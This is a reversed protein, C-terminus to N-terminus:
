RNTIFMDIGNAIGKVIADQYEPSAMLLDEKDNTMYGMEVITTPVTCWNIGSMTDTEWVYEKKAGTENIMGTLIDDSLRYSSDHTAACYPNNKTQCITMMGEKSPSDNGNAHIRVFADANADNAIKAREANSLNVDNTERTMIVQYGRMTLEDRLRLAVQLNLEYEALGSAVGRTGSSVKAKMETAGPGVPEKENNGKSQHGPDIAILKGGGTNAPATEKGVNITEEVTADEDSAFEEDSAFDEDSTHEENATHEEDSAFDEDATYEEDRGIRIEPNNGVPIKDKDLEYTNDVVISIDQNKALSEDLMDGSSDKCGGILITTM